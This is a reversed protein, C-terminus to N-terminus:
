RGTIRGPLLAELVAPLTVAGLLPSSKGPTEVVAVLTSRESAMLAAVELVSDDPGVVPLKSREKPMLEAVTKDALVDCMQEIFQGDVVGALNPDDRIYGPIVLRLVQWGPLVAVPHRRDDVVILGQRREETLLRAADVAGSHLGVTPYPQALEHAKVGGVSDWRCRDPGVGSRAAPIPDHM